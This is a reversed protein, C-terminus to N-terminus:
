GGSSIFGNKTFVLENISSSHGSLISYSSQYKIMHNLSNWYYIDGNPQALLFIRKTGSFLIPAKVNSSEPYLTQLFGCNLEKATM